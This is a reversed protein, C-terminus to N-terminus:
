RERPMLRYTGAVLDARFASSAARGGRAAVLHDVEAVILPTTALDDGEDELWATVEAKTTGEEAARRSLAVDVDSELYISTKKIRM